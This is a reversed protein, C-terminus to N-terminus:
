EDLVDVQDPNETENVSDYQNKTTENNNMFKFVGFGIVALIMLIVIVGVLNKM